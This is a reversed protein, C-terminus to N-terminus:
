SSVILKSEYFLNYVEREYIQEIFLSKIEGHLLSNDFIM